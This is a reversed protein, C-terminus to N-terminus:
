GKEFLRQVVEARSLKAKRGAVIGALELGFPFAFSPQLSGAADFARPLVDLTAVVTGCDDLHVFGTSVDSQMQGAHLPSQRSRNIVHPIGANDSDRYDGNDM